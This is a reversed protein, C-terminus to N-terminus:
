RGLRFRESRLLHEPTKTFQTSAGIMKRFSEPRTDSVLVEDRRNFWIVDQGRRSLGTQVNVTEFLYRNRSAEMISGFAKMQLYEYSDTKASGKLDKRWFKEVVLYEEPVDLRESIATFLHGVTAMEHLEIKVKFERGGEYEFFFFNHGHLEIEYRFTIRM